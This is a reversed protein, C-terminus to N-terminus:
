TEYIRIGKLYLMLKRKIIYDKTRFGKSDEVFKMGTATNTYVFDAFYSCEKEIVPGPKLQGKKPAGKISRPAPHVSLRSLYSNSRRKSIQSLGRGSCFCCNM